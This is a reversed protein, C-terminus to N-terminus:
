AANSSVLREINGIGAHLADCMTNLENRFGDDPLESEDIFNSLNFELVRLPALQMSVKDKLDLTKKAM